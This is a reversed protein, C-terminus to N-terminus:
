TEGCIRLGAVDSIVTFTVNSTRSQSTDVSKVDLAYDLNLGDSTAQYDKFTAKTITVTFDGGPKDITAQWDSVRNACILTTADARNHANIDDLYQVILARADALAIASATLTPSSTTKSTAPLGGKVTTDNNFALVLGIGVAAVVAIVAVAILAARNGHRPPPPSQQPPPAPATM